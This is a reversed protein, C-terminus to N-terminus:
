KLVERQWLSPVPVGAEEAGYVELGDPLNRNADMLRLMHEQGKETEIFAEVTEMAKEEDEAEVYVSATTTYDVTVCYTNFGKRHIM